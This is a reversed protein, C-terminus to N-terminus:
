KEMKTTNADDNTLSADQNGLVQCANAQPILRIEVRRNHAREAPTENSAVPREQGLGQVAFCSPSLDSTKLMWDRVSEARKLSLRQNLAPNGTNDTFGSIVILWGPKAKINFLADILVKTADPKLDSQGSDFLALSDLTIMQPAEQILVPTAPTAPAWESLITHLYPLIREGQYLAMTYASPVGERHWLSFRHADTQLQQYAIIKPEIPTDSLQRFRVIDQQVQNILKQNHYYSGLMAGFLFLGCLLGFLGVTLEIRSIGIYRPLRNLLSDPLPLIQQEQEISVPALLTKQQIFHAWPNDKKGNIPSFNLAVAAPILEPAGPQTLEFLPFLDRNLWSIFNDLWISTSFQQEATLQNESLWVSLPLAMNQDSYVQFESQNNVLTFWCSNDQQSSFLHSQQDLPNLYAAIWFPPLKGIWQRSEGIARRWALIDALLEDQQDSKEPIVAFLVSINVLLAPAQEAIQQVTQILDAPTPVAIYWGHQTARHAVNSQFLAHSQGCVLVIAGQYDAKPIEASKIDIQQAFHQAKRHWWLLTFFCVTLTIVTLFITIDSGLSFFGWLLWLMLVTSFLALGNKVWIHM